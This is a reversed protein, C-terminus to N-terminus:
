EQDIASNSVITGLVKLYSQLEPGTTGKLLENMSTMLNAEIKPVLKSAKSTLSIIKARKDDKNTSRKILKKAALDQVTVTVFPAEVGVVEAIEQLRMGTTSDHLLGLITWELSSLKFPQLWITTQQKLIRNAKSQLLSIQYSTFKDSSGTISSLLKKLM